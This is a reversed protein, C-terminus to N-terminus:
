SVLKLRFSCVLRSTVFVFTNGSSSMCEVPLGILDVCSEKCSGGHMVVEDKRADLSEDQLLDWVKITADDSGSVVRGDTLVAVSRVDQLINFM